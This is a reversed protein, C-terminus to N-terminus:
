FGIELVNYLRNRENAWAVPFYAHCTGFLFGVTGGKSPGRTQDSEIGCTECWDFLEGWGEFRTFHNKNSAVPGGTVSRLWEFQRRFDDETWSGGENENANFHLALEHGAARIQEHVSYSYGSKMMCWTTRIGCEELVKMTTVADEDRNRDSDHSIMAVQRIGDPWYGIFPITKGRERIRRLLHGVAAERWLDAYPHAFYVADTETVLRDRSWDLALGDEAKLRDDDLGATGDPAPPGDETVPRTGQQLGVITHLLDVNWRDLFGNGLPIRQIIPFSGRGAEMGAAEGVPEGSHTEDPKPRWPFARLFRLPREEVWDTGFTAYGEHVPNLNTYGLLKAMGNLGGYSVAIGGKAIYNRLKEYASVHEQMDAVVIIDFGSEAMHHADQLWEFPIGAHSLVEGIYVDFANIGYKWKAEAAKRDFLVGIKAMKM